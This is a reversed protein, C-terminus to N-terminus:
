NCINKFYEKYVEIMRNLFHNIEDFKNLKKLTKFTEFASIERNKKKNLSYKIKYAVMNTHRKHM